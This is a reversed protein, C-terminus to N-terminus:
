LRAAAKFESITNKIRRARSLEEGCTLKTEHPVNDPEIKIMGSMVLDNYLNSIANATEEKGINRMYSIYSLCISSASEHAKVDEPLVTEYYCAVGTIADEGKDATNMQKDVFQVQESVLRFFDTQKEKNQDEIFGQIVKKWASLNINPRERYVLVAFHQRNHDLVALSRAFTVSLIGCQVLDRSASSLTQLRLYNYVRSESVGAAKALKPVSWGFDDIRKQYADSEEIPNLSERASNEALMEESADEDSLERIHCPASEWGLVESIARFRREGCVIEFKDSRIPRLTLPQILGQRQISDALMRIKDESFNRRDNQGAAIKGVSVSTINM